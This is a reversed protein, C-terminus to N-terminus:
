HGTKHDHSQDPRPWTAFDLRLKILASFTLFFIKEKQNHFQSLRLRAADLFGPKPRLFLEAPLILGVLTSSLMLPVQIWCGWGGTHKWNHADLMREEGWSTATINRDNSGFSGQHILLRLIGCSNQFDSNKLSGKSKLTNKRFFPVEHDMLYPVGISAM